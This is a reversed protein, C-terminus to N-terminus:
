ARQSKILGALMDLVKAMGKPMSESSARVHITMTLETQYKSSRESTSTHTSSMGAKFGGSVPGWGGQAQASASAVTNASAKSSATLAETIKAVFDITMEDISFFPIPVVSLLPVSITATQVAGAGGAAVAAPDQNSTTYTFTVMRTQGANTTPDTGQAPAADPKTVDVPDPDPVLAGGGGPQVATPPLFGVILIFDITAKAAQTQAEIAATLPAGILMGFPLSSVTEVAYNKAM